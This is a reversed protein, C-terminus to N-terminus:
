YNFGFQVVPGFSLSHDIILTFESTKNGGTDDLKSRPTVWLLVSCPICVAFGRLFGQREPLLVPFLSSPSSFLM